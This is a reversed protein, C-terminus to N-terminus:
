YWKDVLLVKFGAQEFHHDTTLAEKLKADKMVVFSICDTLGWDKDMRSSYLEFARSFLESNVSIIEVSEDARLDNVTDVALERWQPKALANGIETLIAETTVLPVDIESSLKRAQLHFGDHSNLLALIYATDLFLSGNM